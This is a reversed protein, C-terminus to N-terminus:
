NGEMQMMWVTRDMEEVFQDINLQGNIYLSQLDNFVGQFYMNPTLVVYKAIARYAAIQEPSIIYREYELIQLKTETEAIKNEIDGRTTDDASELAENLKALTKNHEAYEYQYYGQEVPDNVDEFINLALVADMNREITELYKVAADLNKTHPNIAYVGLYALYAPPEGEKFSIQRETYLFDPYVSLTVGIEYQFLADNGSQSFKGYDVTEFVKLLERYMETNFLVPEGKYECYTIYNYTLCFLLQYQVDNSSVLSIDPYDYGYADPWKSTFTLFELWTKPLDQEAINLRDAIEQRYGMTGADYQAVVGIPKGQFILAERIHSYMRQVDNFIESSDISYLFGKEKASKYANSNASLKYIDISSDGALMAKIFDDDSVYDDFCTVTVDPCIDSFARIFASHEDKSGEVILQASNSASQERDIVQIMVGDQALYAYYKDQLIFGQAGGNVTFRYILPMPALIEDEASQENIRHINKNDSYIIMDRAADYAMGAAYENGLIKIDTLEGSALDIEQLRAPAIFNADSYVGDVVVLAKGDKYPTFSQAFPVDFKM